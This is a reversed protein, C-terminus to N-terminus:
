PSLTARLRTFPEEFRALTSAATTLGQLVDDFNDTADDKTEAQERGKRAASASAADADHQEQAPRLVIASLDGRPSAKKRNGRESAAKRKRTPRAWSRSRRRRWRRRRWCCTAS